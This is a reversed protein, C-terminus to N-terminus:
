EAKLIPTKHITLHPPVIFTFYKDDGSLFDVRALGGLFVTYGSKMNLPYSIM